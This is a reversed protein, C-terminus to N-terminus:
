RGAISPAHDRVEDLAGEVREVPAIEVAQERQEGRVHAHV